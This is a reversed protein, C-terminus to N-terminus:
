RRSGSVADRQSLESVTPFSGMSDRLDGGVAAREVETNLWDDRRVHRYGGPADADYEYDGILRGIAIVPKYKQPMVVLDGIQMISRSARYSIHGTTSGARISKLYAERVVEVIENISAVASLDPLEKWGLIILGGDLAAREFEGYRGGRVTWARM